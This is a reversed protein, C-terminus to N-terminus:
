LSSVLVTANVPKPMAEDYLWRYRWLTTSVRKAYNRAESFPIKEVFLDLPIDARQKMWKGVNGQGANYGPLVLLPNPALIRQLKAIYATGIPISVEPKFLDQAEPKPVGADAASSQATPLMLQMLGRANAWSEARPNYYSEERMIAYSTYFLDDNGKSVDSVIELWPQPYALIWASYQQSELDTSPALISYATRASESHRGMIQLLISRALQAERTFKDEGGDSLASLKDLAHEYLGLATLTKIETFEPAQSIESFCYEQAQEPKAKSPKHKKLWDQAKQAELAHYAGFAIMAYYSLPHRQMVEEYMRVASEREGLEEYARASFYALRGQSYQDNEGTNDAHAKAFDIAEQWMKAEYRHLFLLWLSDKYMDGTPYVQIQRELVAMAEDRKNQSLLIQAEFHMADDSYSHKPYDSVIKQYYTIALDYEGSNWAARAGAYLLKIQMDTNECSGIGEKFYPLSAKHSRLKVYSRAIYFLDECIFHTNKSRKDSKLLSQYSKIASESRHANFHSLAIERQSKQPDAAKPSPPFRFDDPWQDKMALIQSQARKGQESKPDIEYIQTLSQLAARTQELASHAVAMSELAEIRLDKPFRKLKQLQEIAEKHRGLAVLSMGEYIQMLSNNQYRKTLTLTEEYSQTQYSSIVANEVFSELALYDAALIDNFYVLAKEYNKSQYFALACLLKASLLQPNSTDAKSETIAAEFATAAKGWRKALFLSHAESLANNGKFFSEKEILSECQAQVPPTRTLEATQIPATTPEAERSQTPGCSCSVLLFVSISVYFKLLHILHFRQSFERCKPNTSMHFYRPSVLVRRTNPTYRRTQTRPPLCLGGRLLLQSHM